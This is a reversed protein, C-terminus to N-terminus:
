SVPGATRQRITWADHDRTLEYTFSASWLDAGGYGAEVTVREDTNWSIPGVSVEVAYARTALDIWRRSYLTESDWGCASYPKVPLRYDAFRALFSADPDRPRSDRTDYIAVCVTQISEGGRGALASFLLDRIVVERIRPEDKSVSDPRTADTSGCGWLALLLSLSSAAALFQRRIHRARHLRVM